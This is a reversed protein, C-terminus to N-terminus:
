YYCLGNSVAFFDLKLMGTLVNQGSCADHDVRYFNQELIAQNGRMTQNINRMGHARLYLTGLLKQVSTGRERSRPAHRFGPFGCTRWEGKWASNSSSSSSSSSSSNIRWVQMCFKWYFIVYRVAVLFAMHGDLSAAKFVSLLLM